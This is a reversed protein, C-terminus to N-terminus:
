FRYRITGTWRNGLQEGREGAPTSNAPPSFEYHYNNFVNWASVGVELGDLRNKFEYGLHADCLWYADVAGGGVASYNAWYTSDVWHASFSTTWGSKKFRFGTNVKNRPSQRAFNRADPRDGQVDQMAYNAFTTLHPTILYDMSFEGGWAEIEGENQYVVPVTILTPPLGGTVIPSQQATVIVDKLVYHFGTIGTKFPGFRGRHALEEETMRQPDLERNGLLHAITPITFPGIHTDPQQVTTDLNNQGRDPNAFSQGGSIRFTQDDVPAYLLSGLASFVTPTLPYSDVRGNGMLIWKNTIDWHDEAYAAWLDRVRQGSDYVSVDTHLHTYDAGLVAENRYPLHLAQELNGYYRDANFREHPSIGSVDITSREGNWYTLIKTDRYKYDVRTNYYTGITNATGATGAAAETNLQNIGGSLDLESVESPKWGWLANGRGSRLAKRNDDQLSNTQDWSTGVKYKTTGFDKGVAANVIHTQRQGGTYSVVGNQLQQPTKTIINLVGNVANPGYVASAPGEVIEIRDIEDLSIPLTELTTFENFSHGAKRGDVLILTRAQFNQNLGRVTVEGDATRATLVDMGPVNRLADWINTAGSDKIDQSTVVYVTSTTRDARQPQHSVTVVKAEEAFFQFADNSQQMAFSTQALLVLVAFLKSTVSKM